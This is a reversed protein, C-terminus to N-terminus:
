REKAFLNDPVFLFDGGDHGAKRIDSYEPTQDANLMVPRRLLGFLRTGDLVTENTTLIDIFAAAFASHGSKGDSDEVPELGGSCLVTRAKKRVISTYYKGTGAVGVGRTFVDQEDRVLKGAYCSDAVVLVHKARMAKLTATIQHNSIWNLTNNRSADSALWFGEDAAEDLVGHGAYYILLNDDETLKTRIDDLALIIDSRTADLLLTVAFNYKKSLIRAVDRADNNASKLKKLNQYDNIGIILAYYKGFDIRGLAASKVVTDSEQVSFDDIEALADDIYIEVRWNGLHGAAETNKLDISHSVAGEKVFNGAATKVAFNGTTQYLSDDPTYWDWRIYHTGTLNALMVHSVVSKDASTFVNTPQVPTSYFAADRIGKATTTNIIKLPAISNKKVTKDSGSCAPFILCAAILAIQLLALIRSM